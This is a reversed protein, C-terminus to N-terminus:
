QTAVGALKKLGDLSGNFRDLDVHPIIGSCSGTGSYQWFAWTKSAKLWAQPIAPQTHNARYDVAVLLSDSLKFDGAIGDGFTPNAFSASTYVMCVVGTERKVEEIFSAVRHLREDRSILLWRDSRPNAPNALDWELDLMYPLQGAGYDEVLTDLFNNAQQVPDLLPKFFHYATVISDAARAGKWNQEFTQDRGQTGDSAKIIVFTKGAAVVQRFDIPARIIQYHSIDIGELM